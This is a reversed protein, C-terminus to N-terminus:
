IKFFQIEEINSYDEFEETGKFSLYQDNLMFQVDLLIDDFTENSILSTDISLIDNIKKETVNLEMDSYKKIFTNIIYEFSEKLEDNDNINRYSLVEFYFLILETAYQKTLYSKFYAVFKSDKLKEFLSNQKITEKKEDEEVNKITLKKSIEDTIELGEFYDLISKKFVQSRVDGFKPDSIILFLDLRKKFNEWVIQNMIHNKYYCIVSFQSMINIIDKGVSLRRDKYFMASLNDKQLFGKTHAILSASKIGLMQQDELNELKAYFIININLDKSEKFYKKATEENEQHVIVPIRYILFNKYTNSLLLSKLHIGVKEILEMCLPCGFFKIFILLLRHDQSLENISKGNQVKMKEFIENIKKKNKEVIEEKVKEKM